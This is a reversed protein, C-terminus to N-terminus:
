TYEGVKTTPHKSQARRLSTASATLSEDQVTIV